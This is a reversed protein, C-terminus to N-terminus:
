TPLYSNMSEPIFDFVHKSAQRSQVSATSPLYSLTSVRERERNASNKVEEYATYPVYMCNSCVAQTPKDFLCVLLFFFFSYFLIMPFICGVVHKQKQKM